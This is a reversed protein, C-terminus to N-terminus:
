FFGPFAFDVLHSEDALIECSLRRFIFPENARSPEPELLGVHGMRFQFGGELEGNEANFLVRLGCEIRM